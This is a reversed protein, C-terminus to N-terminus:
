PSGGVGRSVEPLKNTTLRPECNFKLCKMLSTLGYIAVPKVRQKIFYKFNLLCKYLLYEHFNTSSRPVITWADVEMLVEKVVSKVM